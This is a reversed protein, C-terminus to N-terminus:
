LLFTSVFTEVPEDIKHAFCRDNIVVPQGDRMTIYFTYGEVEELSCGSKSSAAQLLAEENDFFCCEHFQEKSVLVEKINIEFYHGRENMVFM